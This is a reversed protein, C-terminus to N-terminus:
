ARPLRQRRRFAGAGARRPQRPLRGLGARLRVRRRHGLGVPAGADAAAPQHQRVAVVAGAPLLHLRRLRHVVRRGGPRGGAPVAGGVGGRGGRRRVRSRPRRGRADGPRLRGDRAARHRLRLQRHRPGARRDRQGAGSRARDGHRYTRHGALVGGERGDGQRCSGACRRRSGGSCRAAARSGSTPACWRAASWCSSPGACRTESRSTRSRGPWGPWPRGSGAEPSSTTLALRLETGRGGPVPTVSVEGANPVDPHAGGLAVRAAPRAARRRDRRRVRGATARSGVHGLALPARGARGGSLTRSCARCARWTAYVEDPPREVTVARGLEPAGSPGAGASRRRLAAM